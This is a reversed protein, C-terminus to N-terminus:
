NWSSMNTLRMLIKGERTPDENWIKLFPVTGDTTRGTCLKLTSEVM